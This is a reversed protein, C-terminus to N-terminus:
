SVEVIAKLETRNSKGQILFSLVKSISNGNVNACDHISNNYAEGPKVAVVKLDVSSVKETLWQALLTDFGDGMRGTDYIWRYLAKGVPSVQNVLAQMDGLRSGISVLEAYLAAATKNGEAFSDKVCECFAGLSQAEQFVEPWFHKQSTEFESLQEEFRKRVEEQKADYQERTQRLEADHKERELELEKQLKEREEQMKKLESKTGDLKQEFNTRETALKSSLNKRKDRERELDQEKREIEMEKREIEMDKRDIEKDKLDYSQSTATQGVPMTGGVGSTANTGARAKKGSSKRLLLWLLVGVIVLLLVISGIIAMQSRAEARDLRNQAYEERYSRSQNSSDSVASLRGHSHSVFDELEKQFSFGADLKGLADRLSIETVTIQPM